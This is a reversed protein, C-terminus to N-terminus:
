ESGGERGRERGGESVGEREGERGGEKLGSDTGLSYSRMLGLSGRKAEAKKKASLFM